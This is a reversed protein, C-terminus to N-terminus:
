NNAQINIEQTAENWDVQCGLQEAIFRLPLMTRGGTLIPTVDDNAVDIKIMTGDVRATNNGIWLEIIKGSSTITAKQEDQNWAVTAGVNDAIYRIPMFTRGEHIIPPTDMVMRKSNAM